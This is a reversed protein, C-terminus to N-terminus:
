EGFERVRLQNPVKKSGIASQGNSLLEFHSNLYRSLAQASAEDTPRQIDFNKLRSYPIQLTKVKYCKRDSTYPDQNCIARSERPNWISMNLLLQDSDESALWDYDTIVDRSNLYFNNLNFAYSKETTSFEAAETFATFYSRFFQSIPQWNYVLSSGCHNGHKLNIVRLNTQPDNNYREALKESNIKPNVIWDDDSSFILTPTQLNYAQDIFNNLDWLQYLETVPKLFYFPKLIDTLSKRSIYRLGLAGLLKPYESIKPKRDLHFEEQIDEVYPYVAEVTGWTLNSFLFGKLNEQYNDQLTPELNVVPCYALFSNFLKKNEIPNYDNFLSAFLTSSGGLSIGVGHIAAVEDKFPSVYKLWYAAAYLEQGEYFGSVNVRRNAIINAKSVDNNLAMVNFPAEDFLHMFLNQSRPDTEAECFVGCKIIVWPRRTGPKKHLIVGQLKEYNPATLEFEIRGNIKSIDYRMLEENLLSVFGKDSNRTLWKECSSIHDKMIKVVAELKATLSPKARSDFQDRVQLIKRELTRGRCKEPVPSSQKGTPKIAASETIYKLIADWNMSTETSTETSNIKVQNKGWNKLAEPDFLTPPSDISFSNSFNNFTANDKVTFHWHAQDYEYGLATKSFILALHFVLITTIKGNSINKM